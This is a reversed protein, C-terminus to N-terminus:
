CSVSIRLHALSLPLNENKIMVNKPAELCCPAFNWISSIGCSVMMDCVEQAFPAPVTIIGIKINRERVIQAFFEIGFVPHAEDSTNIKLPDNDFGAVIKLGYREFGMYRQLALGLRGAGVIVVPEPKEMNLVRLIDSYLIRTPFGIKPRGESCVSNLDKRVLVEGYDLDRAIEAASVAAEDLHNQIYALYEPLRGLTARSIKTKQM